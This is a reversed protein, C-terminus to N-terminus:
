AWNLSVRQYNLRVFSCVAFIVLTAMCVLSTIFVSPTDKHELCIASLAWIATFAPVSDLYLVSLLIAFLSAVVCMIAGVSPYIYHNSHIFVIMGQVITAILLWTLNIATPLYYFVYICGTMFHSHPEMTEEQYKLSLCQLKWYCIAFFSFATFIFVFALWMVEYGFAFTWACQFFLAGSWFFNLKNLYQYQDKGQNYLPATWQFIIFGAQFFWIVGWISFAFGAPTIPTPNERSIESNTGYGIKGMSSLVNIVVLAVFSITNSIKFSLYM